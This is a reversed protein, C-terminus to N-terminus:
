TSYVWRGLAIAPVLLLLVTLAPLCGRVGLVVAADLVIIVLIGTKVARQVLASEPQMIAQVFRWCVLVVIATWLPMWYQPALNLLSASSASSLFQPFSQLMAIGVLMTISGAFLHIRPIKAAAEKRAFWTVGVIYIGIGGAVIYNVVTWPQPAASMGLLVNLFRCGGMAFPGLVTRKLFRDYLLILAALGFVVGALRWDNGPSEKSFTAALIGCCFLLYGVLVATERPIRDSPIPRKPRERRDQELDYVDNLIMGAIYLCSSSVLLLVFTGLPMLSEHTFWFGMAVDAMATFVNPLRMLQVWALLRSPQSSEDATM